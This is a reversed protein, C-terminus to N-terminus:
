LKIQDFFEMVMLSSSVGSVQFGFLEQSGPVPPWSHGLENLLINISAYGTLLIFGVSM